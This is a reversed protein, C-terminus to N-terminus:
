LGEGGKKKKIEGPKYPVESRGMKNESLNQCQGFLLTGRKIQKEEDGNFEGQGFYWTNIHMTQLNNM